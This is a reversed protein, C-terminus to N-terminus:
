PMHGNTTYRQELLQRIRKIDDNQEALDEKIHMQEAKMIAINKDIHQVSRKIHEQETQIAEIEQEAEIQDDALVSYGGYFTMLMVFLSIVVEVSVVRGWFNGVQEAM